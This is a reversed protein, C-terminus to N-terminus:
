RAGTVGLRALLRHFHRRAIGSAEAARTVNGGHTALVRELYRREFEDLVQQRAVAIPLNQALVREVADVVVPSPGPSPSAVSSPAAIPDRVSMPEDVVADDWTPVDGLEIQRAVANRLERVNGSWASTEWAALVHAPVATLSAGLQAAFTAALLRVDGRRRRLPPLEVRGVSLRHFLDDRFRGNQVERDLDRRTAALIRVDVTIVKSGGVRRLEGREVVRLLKAQLAVDLDGIEDIFLTGGNAEEFVGAHAQTAGTFAGREHGFLMSEVLSPAVTTCDFVVFPRAARPSQEHLSEALVEKGTGTEGEILVPVRASALKAFFPYLRRMERSQGIVRGFRTVQPIEATARQALREVVITTEGLRITEGGRLRVEGIALGEVTTGNTSDLDTARVQGDVIEFALHRRSVGTDTVGLACSPSRGVLVRGPSADDVVLVKGADPGGVVRLQLAGALPPSSPEDTSRVTESHAVDAIRM